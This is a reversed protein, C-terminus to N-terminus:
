NCNIRLGKKELDSIKECQDPIFALLQIAMEVMESDKNLSYFVWQGKRNETLLGVDKLKRLHQSIASQSLKFIEVFECVCCENSEMLKMMMLRTKDGMLKLLVAAQDVEVEKIM